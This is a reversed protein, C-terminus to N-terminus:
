VRVTSCLTQDANVAAQFEAFVGDFGLVVDVAAGVEYRFLPPVGDGIVAHLVAFFVDDLREFGGLWAGILGGSPAWM